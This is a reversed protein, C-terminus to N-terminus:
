RSNLFTISRPCGRGTCGRFAILLGADRADRAVVGILERVDSVTAPRRGSKCQVYIVEIQCETQVCLRSVDVGGDQSPRTAEIMSVDAADLMTAVRLELERGVPLNRKRSLKGLTLAVSEATSQASPARPGNLLVIADRAKETDRVGDWWQRSVLHGRRGVCLLKVEQHRQPAPRSRDFAIYPSQELSASFATKLLYFLLTAWDDNDEALNQVRQSFVDFAEASFLTLSGFRGGAVVLEPGFSRVVEAPIRVRGRADVKTDYSALLVTVSDWEVRVM